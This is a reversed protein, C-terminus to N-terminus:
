VTVLADDAVPALPAVEPNNMFWPRKSATPRNSVANYNFYLISRPWPTMNMASGHLLTPHIFAVTGAPGCLDVVGGRDALGRLVELPVRETDYGQVDGERGLIEDLLETHSGPIVLLPGNAPTCDHLFVAAMVAQPKPMGDGRQWATFDQHWSWSDGSFPLKLNIRSQYVYAPEGLLAEVTGLMRPLRSTLGFPASTAHVAYVIKPPAEPRDRRIEPGTSAVLPPMAARLAEVEPMSLLSPFILFGRQRYEALQAENLRMAAEKSAQVHGAQMDCHLVSDSLGIHRM